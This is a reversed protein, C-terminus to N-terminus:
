GGAEVEPVKALQVWSSDKKFAPKHLRARYGESYKYQAQRLSYLNAGGEYDPDHFQM